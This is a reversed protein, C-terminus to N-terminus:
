VPVGLAETELLSQKFNIFNISGFLCGFWVKGIFLREDVSGWRWRSPDSPGSKAESKQLPFGKMGLTVDFWLPGGLMDVQAKSCEDPSWNPPPLTEVRGVAAQCTHNIGAKWDLQDEQVMWSLSHVMWVISLVLGWVQIAGSAMLSLCSAADSEVVPDLGPDWFFRHSWPTGATWDIEDKDWKTGVLTLHHTELRLTWSQLAAEAVITSGFIWKFCTHVGIPVSPTVFTESVSLDSLKAILDKIDM